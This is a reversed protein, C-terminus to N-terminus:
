SSDSCDSSGWGGTSWHDAFADRAHAPRLADVALLAVHRVDMQGVLQVGLEDSERDRMRADHRDIRRRRQRQGTHPHDEAGGIHRRARWAKPRLEVVPRDDRGTLDLVVAVRDRDDRCLRAVHGLFRRTLHM